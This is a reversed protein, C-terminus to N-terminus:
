LLLWEAFRDKVDRIGALVPHTQEFIKEKLEIEQEIAKERDREPTMMWEGYM